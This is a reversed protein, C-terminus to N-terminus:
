VGTINYQVATHTASSRTGTRESLAIRFSVYMTTQGKGPERDTEIELQRRFGVRWQTTNTVLIRGTNTSNGASTVKGDTDALRMQESQVLPKGYVNLIEGTSLTARAGAVDVTEFETISLSRIATNVDTIYVVDGRRRPVAYKGLKSLIENYADASVAASHNNSQGTNDVLPLHLLGDFGLMFHGKGATSKTITGGDANIGNTGTTDGNLIVDDIVEAANRVLSRRIEPVLAIIADEELEDSFPVGTKLGYATLSTKATSVDTTDVQVNETIPFWNTDGLQVPIDFPNSPMPVQQLLPLVLTELNVDMWLEAAEFTPVLEDGSGATTSDLARGLMEVMQARWNALTQRFQSTRSPDENPFMIGKRQMAGDEWALLSEATFYERLRVRADRTENYLPSTQGQKIARAELLESLIKLDLLDYGALRGDSVRVRGDNSMKALRERRLDKMGEEVAKMSGSIRDVEERLPATREEVRDSMFSKVDALESLLTDIDTMQRTM